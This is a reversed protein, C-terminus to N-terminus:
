QQLQPAPGADIKGVRISHRGGGFATALFAELIAIALLDGLMRAGLGLINADNHERALRAEIEHHCLAARIGRYRNATIVMGQGTGCVLVGLTGPENAVRTAVAHAFDPYDCRAGDHTGLDVAEHGLEGLRQKVMNKMAFGGHDAGLYIRM